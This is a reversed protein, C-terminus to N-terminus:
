SGWPPLPSFHCPTPSLLELTKNAFPGRGTMALTVVRGAGEELTAPRQNLVINLSATAALQPNEAVCRAQGAREKAHHVVVCACNHYRCLSKLSGLVHRARRSDNFSGLVTAAMLPDIVLLLPHYAHLMMGLAHLDPAHDVAFGGFAVKLWKPDTGGLHPRVAWEWEAPTEEAAFYLVRGHAARMGAFDEGRSVAAALAAMLSTKGDKPRGALVALYGAPLLGEVIWGLEPPEESGFLLELDGQREKYYARWEPDLPDPANGYLPRMSRRSMGEAARFFTKTLRPPM